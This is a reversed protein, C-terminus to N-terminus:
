KVQFKLIIDKGVAEAIILQIDNQSENVTKTFYNTAKVGFRRILYMLTDVKADILSKNETGIGLARDNRVNQIKARGSAVYETISKRFQGNSSSKPKKSFSYPSNPANKTSGWGKVGQNVFDYYDNLIIDVSKGDDSKRYTMNTLLSGSGKFKASKINDELRELFMKAVADLAETVRTFLIIDEGALIELDNLNTRQASSISM